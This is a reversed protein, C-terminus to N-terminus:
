KGVAEALKKIEAASFARTYDIIVGAATTGNGLIAQAASTAPATTEAKSAVEVGDVFLRHMTGDWTAALHHPRSLDLPSGALNTTPSIAQPVSTAAIIGLKTKSNWDATIDGAGKIVGALTYASVGVPPAANIQYARTNAAAKLATSGVGIGDVQTSTKNVNYVTIPATGRDRLDAGSAEDMRWYHQPKLALAALEYASTAEEYEQTWSTTGALTYGTKARATITVTAPATVTYTGPAVLAGDRLYEAGDDSKITFSKRRLDFVPPAPPWAAKDKQANTDLWIVPLGYKHTEPQTEGAVLAFGLAKAIAEETPAVDALDAKTAYESMDPTHAEIMDQVQAEATDGLRGNPKVGRFANNLTIEM